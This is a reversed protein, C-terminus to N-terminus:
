PIRKFIEAGGRDADMGRRQDEGARMWEGEADLRWVSRWKRIHFRGDNNLKAIMGFKLAV